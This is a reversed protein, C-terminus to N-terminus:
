YEPIDTHVRLTFNIVLRAINDNTASLAEVNFSTPVVNKIYPQTLRQSHRCCEKLISELKELGSDVAEMPTRYGKVWANVTVSVDMGLCFQNFTVLTGGGISIHWACDLQSNPINDINFADEWEVFEPDAARMRAQFYPRITDFSM